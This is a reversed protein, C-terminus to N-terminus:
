IIYKIGGVKETIYTVVSYKNLINITEKSPHNYVKKKSSIIAYKPLVYQIFKESTSTKSGHHGIKILEINTINQKQLENVIQEESEKLSDGMFLYNKTNINVNLVLSNANENEELDKSVTLYNAYPFLINLEIDNIKINDGAKVMIQKINKCELKEIINIYEESKFDYPQSYILYDVKCKEVIELIGNIHDSHFHSIVIVDIKQINEKKMYADFIYATDNTISGSDIMIVTNDNKIIAMEGQGVNFFYIYNNFIDNYISVIAVIIVFICSITRKIKELYENIYKIRNRLKICFILVYLYYIILITVPFSKINITININNLIQSINIVLRLLLELISYSITSIYPVKTLVLSIIGLVNICTAITSIFLNSLIFIPSFKNFYYISLPLVLINVSLTVSLIKSVSCLIKVLIKNQINWKIKSELYNYIKGSFCMLGVIALFSFIMGVNFIRYPNVLTMLYLAILLIKETSININRYKCIIAILSMISARVISLEMGTISCFFLIILIQVFLYIKEKSRLKYFIYTLILLLINLNSGSVATIHSIGIENFTEKINEDLDRTDGYLMSKLLEAEKDGLKDDISNSLKQKLSYIHKILKNGINDVYEVEYANIIGCIDKSNLYKKYDFEGINRMLAPIIIKGNIKIGDGYEYQKVERLKEKSLDKDSSYKNKTYINLIFKNNDLKVLYSIKNDEEKQKEIIMVEYYKNKSDSSYKHNYKYINFILSLVYGLVILIYIIRKKINIM